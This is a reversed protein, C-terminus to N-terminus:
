LLFIYHNYKQIFYDIYSHLSLQTAIESDILLQCINNGNSYTKM